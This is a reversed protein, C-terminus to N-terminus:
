VAGGLSYSKFASMFPSLINGAGGAIQAFTSAGSQGQSGLAYQTGTKYIDGMTGYINSANQAGQFGANPNVYQYGSTATPTSTFGASGQPASAALYNNLLGQQQGLRQSSLNYVNPGSAAFQQAAGLRSQDLANRLSVDRALAASMTEGSGLFGTVAGLRNQELQRRLAVDRAMADTTTQGSSMFGTVAGLRNSELQARLAVDRSLADGTTQGSGLFQSAAGYRALKRAEGAAGTEVAEQVAPAVGFINGRATQAARAAQQYQRLEDAGLTSGLKLQNAAEQELSSRLAETQATTTAGLKANALANYQSTLTKRLQETALDTTPGLTSNALTNYQSTLTKRLQETARDTTAGVKTEAMTKYKDSLTRVISGIKPDIANIQKITREEPLVLTKKLNAISKSAADGSIPKYNDYLDKADLADKKAQALQSSLNDTTKQADIKRRDGAPLGAIFQNAQTLQSQLDTAALTATDYFSKYQAKTGTNIDDLIQQDTVDVNLEGALGGTPVVGGAKLKALAANVDTAATSAKGLNPTIDSLNFRSLSEIYTPARQNAEQTIRLLKEKETNLVGIDAKGKATKSKTDILKKQNSVKLIEDIALQSNDIIDLAAKGLDKSKFDRLEKAKSQLYELDAAGINQAGLKQANALATSYNNVAEFFTEPAKTSKEIKPLDFQYQAQAAAVDYGKKGSYDSPNLKYVQTILAKDLDAKNKYTAADKVGAASYENQLALLQKANM